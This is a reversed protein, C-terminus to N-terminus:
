KVSKDLLSDSITYSSVGNTTTYNFTYQIKNQVFTAQTTSCRTMSKDSKFSTCVDQNATVKSNAVILNYVESIPLPQLTLKPNILAAIAPHRPLEISQVYFRQNTYMFKANM